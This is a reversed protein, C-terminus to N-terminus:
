PCRIAFQAIQGDPVIVLVDPSPRFVHAQGSANRLALYKGNQFKEETQDAIGLRGLYQEPDTMFGYVNGGHDAYVTEMVATGGDKRKYIKTMRFQYRSISIETGSKECARKLAEPAIKGDKGAVLSDASLLWRGSLGATLKEHTHWVDSLNKMPRFIGVANVLQEDPSQALATGSALCVFLGLSFRWM